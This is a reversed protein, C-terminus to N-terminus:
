EVVVVMVVVAEAAEGSGLDGRAVAMVAAAATFNMVGGWEGIGREGSTAGVVRGVSATAAVAVEM